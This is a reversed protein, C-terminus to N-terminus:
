NQNTYTSPAETPIINQQRGSSISVDGTFVRIAILLVAVAAIIAAYIWWSEKEKVEPIEHALLDQMESKSLERDGVIMSHNETKRIVRQAGVHPIFEYSLRYPEFIIDGGLGARMIGMGEWEIPEGNRLTNKIEYAFDNVMKIAEWESINKKRSVYDFLEKNPSDNISDYSIIFSPPLIKKNAFDTQASIRFMDFTGIGPM